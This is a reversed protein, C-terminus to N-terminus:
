LRGTQCSLRAGRFWRRVPAGRFFDPANTRRSLRPSATGLVDHGPRPSPMLMLMCIPTRSPTCAALVERPWGRGPRPTHPEGRMSLYKLSEAPILIPYSVILYSLNRQLSTVPSDSSVANKLQTTAPNSRNKMQTDALRTTRGKSNLWIPQRDGACGVGCISLLVVPSSEISISPGRTM